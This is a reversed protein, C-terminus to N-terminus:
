DSLQRCAEEEESTPEPYRGDAALCVVSANYWKASCVSQGHERHYGLLQQRCDEAAEHTRHKHGCSHRVSPRIPKLHNDVVEGDRVIVQYYNNM